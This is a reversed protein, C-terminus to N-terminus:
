EQANEVEMSLIRECATSFGYSFEDLSHIPTHNIKLKEITIKLAQVLEKAENIRSRNDDFCGAMNTLSSDEYYCEDILETLKDFLNM